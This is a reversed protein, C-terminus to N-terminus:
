RLTYEERLLTWAPTGTASVTRRWVVTYDNRIESSGWRRVSTGRETARDGSLEFRDPTRVWSTGRFKAVSAAFADNSADRSERLVALDNPTSVLAIRNEAPSLAIRTIGQLDPETFRHVVPWADPTQPNWEHIANGSAMLLTGRSTWAHAGGTPFPIEALLRNSAGREVLDMRMLQKTEGAQVVFSVANTGPIRYPATVAGPVIRELADGNWIAIHREEENMFLVWRREDIRTYYGATKVEPLLTRLPKGDLDHLWVTGERLTTFQRADPTPTPSFGRARVLPVSEGSELWYRVAHVGLGTDALGAAETTFLLSRGDPFFAPQNDYGPHNSINELGSVAFRGERMDLSGLWVETTLVQAAASAALLLSLLPPAFRM